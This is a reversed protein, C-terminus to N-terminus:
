IAEPTIEWGKTEDHWEFLPVDEFLDGNALSHPKTNDKNENTFM